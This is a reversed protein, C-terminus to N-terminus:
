MPQSKERSEGGPIALAEETQGAQELARISEVHKIIVTVALMCCGVAIPLCRKGDLIIAGAALVMFTVISRRSNPHIKVLTSFFIYVIALLLVLQSYPLLAALVGFSTAICKGGHFHNLMGVAHGLVPAAMVFAFQWEAMGLSRAAWWVPVFGKMMDLLLCLLGVRVGCHVFVNASGPNGDASLSCVDKGTLMPPLLSCYMVSGSVFGGLIFLFWSLM